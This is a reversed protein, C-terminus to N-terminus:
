SGDGLYVRAVALASALQREDGSNVMAELADAVALAVVPHWSAIHEADPAHTAGGSVVLAASDATWIGFREGRRWPGRTAADARKRILRAAQLVADADTM